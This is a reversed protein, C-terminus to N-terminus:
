ISLSIQSAVPAAAAFWVKYIFFFLLCSSLLCLPLFPKHHPVCSTSINLVIMTWCFRKWEKSPSFFSVKGIKRPERRHWWDKLANRRKETVCPTRKHLNLLETWVVVRGTDIVQEPQLKASRNFIYTPNKLFVHPVATSPYLFFGNWYLRIAPVKNTIPACKVALAITVIWWWSANVGNQLCMRERYSTWVTLSDSQPWCGSSDSSNPEILSSITDFWWSPCNNM